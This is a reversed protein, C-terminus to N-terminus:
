NSERGNSSEKKLTLFFMSMNGLFLGFGVAFWTNNEAASICLLLGALMGIVTILILLKTM